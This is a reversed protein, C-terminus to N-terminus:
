REATTGVTFALTTGEPTTTIEMASSVFAIIQLGRGRDPESPTALWRGDDRVRVELQGDHHDIAVEVEGDDHGELGHEIANAVAETLALRLDEVVMPAVDHGELWRAVVRRLDHLDDLRAPALTARLHPSPRRGSRGGTRERVGIM